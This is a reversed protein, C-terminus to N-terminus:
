TRRHENNNHTLPSAFPLPFSLSTCPPPFTTLSPLFQLYSNRPSFFSLFYTFTHSPHLISLSLSLYILPSPSLFTPRLPSPYFPLSLPYTFPSPFPLSPPVKSYFVIHGMPSIAVLTIPCHKPHYISRIYKGNRLTHIICSGDNSGSVCVDLGIDIAVCTVEENHGYLIHIPNEDVHYAYGRNYNIEWVLVTTDRSGTVFLNGDSGIALCTVIDKHKNLSQQPRSQDIWTCKISSDWHGCSLILSGDRSCGFLNSSIPLDAAFAAGIKKRSNMLLDLEFLFNQSTPQVGTSVSNSSSSPSPSPTAQAPVQSQNSTFKHTGIFRTSTLTIVHNFNTNIESNWTSDYFSYSPFQIFVIPDTSIQSESSKLPLVITTSTSNSPTSSLFIQIKTFFPQQAHLENFNHRKPHPKKLLQAPTQGFNDIQAETARREMEDEIADLDVSGEYTLYYFLNIAKEAEKGRQKYGFILDIWEHIHSSVYESELAERHIRIFEEVSGKAWKPLEVDNFLNGKQTKGKKKKKM